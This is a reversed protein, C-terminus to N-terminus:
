LNPRRPMWRPQVLGPLGPAAPPGPGFWSLTGLWLSGGPQQVAWVAQRDRSIRRGGGRLCGGPALVFGGLCAGFCGAARLLGFFPLEAEEDAMYPYQMALQSLSVSSRIPVPYPRCRRTPSATDRTARTNQEKTACAASWGTRRGKTSNATRSPTWAPSGDIGTPKTAASASGASCWAKELPPYTRNGGRHRSTPPKGVQNHWHWMSPM